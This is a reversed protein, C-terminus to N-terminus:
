AVRAPLAWGAPLDRGLFAALRANPEAYLEDLRRRTEADIPEPRHRTTRMRDAVFKGVRGPFPALLRRGVIARWLWLPRFEAHPNEARGDGDDAPFPEIGLHAAVGALVAAPDSRVDDLLVVHLQERPFHDLVLEIQDMYLGASLHRLDAPDCRDRRPLRVGEALEDDVLAAFTRRETANRYYVHRWNSHARSAPERLIALLRAEGQVEAIRRLAESYLMTTPTADALRREPGAAAFRDSYWDLGRAWNRDDSFFHLEKEPPLFVQPHAMLRWALWTSGAKGAAVVFTDPLRPTM